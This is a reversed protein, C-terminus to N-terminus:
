TSTLRSSYLDSDNVYNPYRQSESEKIKDFASKIGALSMSTHMANWSLQNLRDCTDMNVAMESIRRVVTYRQSMTHIIMVVGSCDILTDAEYGLKELLRGLIWYTRQTHCGSKILLLVIDSLVHAEEVLDNDDTNAGSCKM